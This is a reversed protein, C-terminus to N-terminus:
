VGEKLGGVNGRLREVIRRLVEVNNQLKYIAIHGLNIKGLAENLAMQQKVQETRIEAGLEAFLSRVEEQFSSLQTELTPSTSTTMTPSHMYLLDTHNSRHDSDFPLYITWYTSPHLDNKHIALPPPHAPLYANHM